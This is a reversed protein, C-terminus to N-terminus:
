RMLRNVLAVLEAERTVGGKHLVSKVQASLTQASTGRAAAIDRRNVGNSLDLAVEAEAATLGLARRLLAATGGPLAEAGHLVVMVRPDFGFAYDRRPLRIIDCRMSRRDDRDDQLWLSQVNVGASLAHAIARELEPAQRTAALRRDRLRVVKGSAESVLAEAQPTMASVQGLRDLLFTALGLSELTGTLLQQGRHAMARQMRVAAQAHLAGDAFAARDQARTRGEKESRLIALGILEGEGQLLATQAGYTGDWTRCHDDYLDSALRTRVRDYHRESIVELTGGNAAVRWNVEPRWAEISAFDRQYAPDIDTMVNFHTSGDGIGILQARSSRSARAFRRLAREWGDNSFPADLFAERVATMESSAM